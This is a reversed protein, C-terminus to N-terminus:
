LASRGFYPELRGDAIRRLVLSPTGTVMWIVQHLIQGGGNPDM